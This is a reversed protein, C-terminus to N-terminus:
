TTGYNYDAGTLEEQKQNSVGEIFLGKISDKKSTTDLTNRKNFYLTKSM